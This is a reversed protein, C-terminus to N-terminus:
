AFAGQIENGFAVWGPRQRRAFLELYPGPLTEAIEHVDAPKRSHQLNPSIIGLFGHLRPPSVNGRRGILVYESVGRVWYGIGYNLTATGDHRPDNVTKVWPFGTVYEFGWANLVAMAEPLKPWTGWLFLVCDDAALKAVPMAMIDQDTMVAYQGEATGGGRSVRYQWPPDAVIVGFRETFTGPAIGRADGVVVDGPTV